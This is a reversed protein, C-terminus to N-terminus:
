LDNELRETDWFIGKNWVSGCKWGAGKGASGTPTLGVDERMEEREALRVTVWLPFTRCLSEKDM